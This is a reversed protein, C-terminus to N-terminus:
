QLRTLSCDVTITVKDNMNANIKYDPVLIYFTSNLIMKGTKVTVTGTAQIDKTEGHISLKGKATVPYVGDTGYKVLANNIIEGKFESKPFKDSEIYKENFHKQMLAKKFEFGKTLLSFQLIGTKTDLVVSVAKNEANVSSLPSKGALSIRGIKTFYKDQGSLTINAIVILIAFLLIKKM